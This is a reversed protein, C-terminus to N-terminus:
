VKMIEDEKHKALDAIKTVHQDTLKQVDDLGGREEDESITKDKLAKKLKENSDRRINRIATKHDEAM